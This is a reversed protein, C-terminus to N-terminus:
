KICSIVIYSLIRSLIISQTSESARSAYLIPLVNDRLLCLFDRFQCIVPSRTVVVMGLDVDNWILQCHVTLNQSSRQAHGLMVNEGNRLAILIRENGRLVWLRLM